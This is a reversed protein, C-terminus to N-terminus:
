RVDGSGLLKLQQRFALPDVTKGSIGKFGDNMSRLLLKRRMKKMPKSYPMRYSQMLRRCFRIGLLCIGVASAFANSNYKRIFLVRNRFTYYDKWWNEPKQEGNVPQDRHNMVADRILLMKYERSVRYTYEVDDGYIFLRGDAIGVDKVARKAVMPGVFADAEIMSIKPVEEYTHYMQLDRYLFRSERKHHYLQYERLDIGYILPALIGIDDCYNKQELLREACDERPYADADMLWYWDPDYKEQAYRMGEEFGGAGGRNEDLWLIEVQEDAQCKLKQRNGENSANDVVVIKDIPISQARLANLSKELYVYDNFTVTIAVIKDM